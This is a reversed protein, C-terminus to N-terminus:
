PQAGEDDALPLQATGAMAKKVPEANLAKKARRITAESYGELKGRKTIENSM